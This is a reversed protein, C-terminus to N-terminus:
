PVRQAHWSKANSDLYGVRRLAELTFEVHRRPPPQPMTRALAALVADLPVYAPTMGHLRAVASLTQRELPLLKSRSPTNM